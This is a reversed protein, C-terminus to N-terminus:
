MLGVPSPYQFCDMGTVLWYVPSVSYTGACKTLLCCAIATKAFIKKNKAEIRCMGVIASRLFHRSISELNGTCALEEPGVTIYHTQRSNQVQLPPPIERKKKLLDLAIVHTICINIKLLTWSYKM